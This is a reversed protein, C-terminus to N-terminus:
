KHLHLIKCMPQHIPKMFMTSFSEPSEMGIEQYDSYVSDLERVAIYLLLGCLLLGWLSLEPFYFLELVITCLFTVLFERESDMKVVVLSCTIGSRSDLCRFDKINLNPLCARMGSLLCPRYDLCAEGCAECCVRGLQGVTPGAAAALRPLGRVRRFLAERVKKITGGSRSIGEIWIFPCATSYNNSYPFSFLKAGSSGYSAFVEHVTRMSELAAKQLEPNPDQVREVYLELNQKLELDKRRRRIILVKTKPNSELQELNASCGGGDRQGISSKLRKYCDHVRRIEERNRSRTQIEEQSPPSPTVPAPFSSVVTSPSQSELQPPPPQSEPLSPSLTRSLGRSASILSRYAQELNASTSKPVKSKRM